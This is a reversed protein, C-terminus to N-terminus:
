PELIPTNLGLFRDALEITLHGCQHHICRSHIRVRQGDQEFKLVEIRHSTYPPSVKSRWLECIEIQTVNARIPGNPTITNM